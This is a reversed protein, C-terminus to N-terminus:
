SVSMVYHGRLILIIEPNMVFRNTNTHQSSLCDGRKGEGGNAEVEGIAKQMYDYYVQQCQKPPTGRDCPSIDPLDTM